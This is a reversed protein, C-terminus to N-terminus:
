RLRRLLMAPTMVNLGLPQAAKFRGPRLTVLADARGVAATQLVLEDASDTLRPRWQFDTVIQESVAAIASLFREVAEEMRGHALRQEVSMLITRYEALLPATLMLSLRRAAAERLLANSAGVASRLAAALIGSDLVLKPM